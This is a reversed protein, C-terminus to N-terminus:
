NIIAYKNYQIKLGTKKNFVKLPEPNDRKGFPILKLFKKMGFTFHLFENMKMNMRLVRQQVTLGVDLLQNVLGYCVTHLANGNSIVAVHHANLLKLVVAVLDIVLKLLLTLVKLRYYTTLYINCGASLLLAVALFQVAGVVVENQQGLVLLTVM